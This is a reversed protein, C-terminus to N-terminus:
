SYINARVIWSYYCKVIYFDRYSETYNTLWRSLFYSRISIILKNWTEIIAVCHYFLFIQWTTKWGKYIQYKLKISSDGNIGLLVILIPFKLSVIKSIGLLIRTEQCNHFTMFIRNRKTSRITFWSVLNFDLALQQGYQQIYSYFQSSRVKSAGIERTSIGMKEHHRLQVPFVIQYRAGISRVMDDNERHGQLLKEVDGTINWFFFIM